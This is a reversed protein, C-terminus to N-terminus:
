YGADMIFALSDEKGVVSTKDARKVKTDVLRVNVVDQGFAQDLHMEVAGPLVTEDDNHDLVVNQMPIVVKSIRVINDIGNRVIIKLLAEEYKQASINIKAPDINVEKYRCLVGREPSGYLSYRQKLTRFADVLLEEDEHQRYIAVEIPMTSYFISESRQEMLVPSKFRLYVYKALPKPTLLAPIPFVGLIVSDQRSIMKVETVLHNAFYRQYLFCSPNNRDPLVLIKNQKINLELREAGRASVLHRGFLNPMGIGKRVVNVKPIVKGWVGLM